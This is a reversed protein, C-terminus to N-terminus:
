EAQWREGFQRTGTKLAFTLLLIENDTLVRNVILKEIDITTNVESPINEQISTAVEQTLQDKPSRQLVTQYLHDLISEVLYPSYIGKSAYQSKFEDVREMEKYNTNDRPVPKNLF